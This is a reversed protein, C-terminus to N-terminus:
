RAAALFQQRLQLQAAHCAKTAHVGGQNCVVLIACDREPVLLASCYWMTNSGDHALFMGRADVGDGKAWPAEAVGWGCAYRVGAGDAPRHLFDFSDASLLAVQRHPNAADGRLHLAVFKAWDPLSVHVMGAPAIAAPNDAAPGPQVARGLFDHARPQDHTAPTGPPGIGASKMGLPEFLETQILDDWSRQMVTEVMAGAIAYGANSYLYATGPQSIPPRALVGRVLELRQEVPTGRQKWLRGWLGDASLDAPAGARHHLLQTLTVSRWAPDLPLVTPGFVEGITTDWRLKGREVLRAILTATMAKTDSGLHFRDSITVREPRGAERVGAVGAAVIQDGRLVVAALAPVKADARITELLSGLDQAGMVAPGVASAAPAANRAPDLRLKFAFWALAFIAGVVVIISGGGIMLTLKLWRPM